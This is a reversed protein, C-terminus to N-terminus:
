RGGEKRAGLLARPPPGTPNRLTTSPFIRGAARKERADDHLPGSVDARAREGHRAVFRRRPKGTWRRPTPVVVHLGKGAPTKLFSKLGLDELLGRTLLAATKVADWPLADDPDLDFILRDPHELKPRKSGWPHFEIVGLQALTVLSKTSNAMMYRAPGASDQVEVRDVWAPVSDKAHKQYFCKGEAGDPCRVLSLPRDKAHPLMLASVAEYYECLERKTLGMDPFLVKDPHSVAVDAITFLSAGKRAAPPAARYRAKRREVLGKAPERPSGLVFSPATKRALGETFSIEAVLKPKVWTRAANPARRRNM